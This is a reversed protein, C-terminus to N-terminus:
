VDLRLGLVLALAADVRDLHARPLAGILGTLDTKALTYVEACKVTSALQLGAVGRAVPVDWPYPGGARQATTLHVALLRPYHENANFTDDSVILFPRRKASGGALQASGWWLEGRRV